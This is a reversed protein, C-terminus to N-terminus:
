NSSRQVPLAFTAPEFGALDLRDYRLGGRPSRQTVRIAFIAKISPARAQWYITSEQDLMPSCSSATSPSRYLCGNYKPAVFGVRYLKSYLLYGDQVATIFPLVFSFCHYISNSLCGLIQRDVLTSFTGEITKATSTTKRTTM